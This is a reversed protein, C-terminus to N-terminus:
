VATLDIAAELEEEVDTTVPEDKLNILPQVAM